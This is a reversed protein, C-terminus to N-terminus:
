DLLAHKGLMGLVIGVGAHGSANSVSDDPMRLTFRSFSTTDATPVAIVSIPSRIRTESVVYM